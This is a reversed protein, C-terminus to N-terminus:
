IAMALGETRPDTALHLAGRRDVLGVHVHGHSGQFDADRVGFPGGRPLSLPKEVVATWGKETREFYFRPAKVSQAVHMGYVFLNEYTRLHLQPRLDAGVCGIVYKNGGDEVAMVSLTHLPRKRPAPSNPLGRASAFGLARNQFPFGLAVIGSGFPHYLSQIFGITSTGDSVVFFTTDGEGGRPEALGPAQKLSSYRIYGRVDLTMHSPDAVHADRFAYVTATPEYWAEIRRPDDFPLAGLGLEHLASVLNLTTIGQTNPPLEYIARGDVELKLPEVRACEHEMLDDLDIGVGQAELESVLEEALEGYYFEDLGRTALVRLARAADRNVVRQGPAIGAFLRRWRPYTSLERESEASARALMWGANFGSYALDIARKLLADLPMTGFEEYIRAWLKVLGPVTVTLPGRRPREALFKEADFGRPAFGSSALAVVEDGVFGLLFADGGPGGMHPQVVSLVSSVAIAADFANGGKELVEVGALVALPHDAAVGKSGSAYKVPMGPPM